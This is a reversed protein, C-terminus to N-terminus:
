NQKESKGETSVRGGQWQGEYSRVNEGNRIFSINAFRAGLELTVEVKGANFIGFTLGGKYGAQVPASAFLIGCRQLTSRPRILASINEPLNIVEICKILLYEGPKIVVAKEKGYKAVLETEPTFRHEEGLHAKDSKLKFVEGARLDFGAGEPNNLERDSLNEVLKISKVLELLEVTGIFM